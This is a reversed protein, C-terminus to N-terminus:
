INFFSIYIQQPPQHPRKTLIKARYDLSIEIYYLLRSKNKNKIKTSNDNFINQIMKSSVYLKFSQVTFKFANCDYNVLAGQVYTHHTLRSSAQGGM